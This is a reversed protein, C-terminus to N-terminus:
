PRRYITPGRTFDTLGGVIAGPVACIAATVGVVEGTSFLDDKGHIAAGIGAGVGAGIGAGVVTSLAYRTVKISKIESRQFTYRSSQVVRSATCTLKDEDVNDITCVRSKSDAKIHVKTHPPLQQVRQWNSGATQGMAGAPFLLCFILPFIRDAKM